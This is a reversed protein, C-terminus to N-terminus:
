GNDIFLFKDCGADICIIVIVRRMKVFPIQVFSLFEIHGNISLTDMLKIISIVYIDFMCKIQSLLIVRCVICKHM